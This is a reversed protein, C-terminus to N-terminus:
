LEKIRDGVVDFMSLLSGTVHNDDKKILVVSVDYGQAVFYVTIMSDKEEIKSMRSISTGTSDFVEGTLTDASKTLKFVMKADGQPTGKFVINWRGRFYETAPNQARVTFVFSVAALIIVFAKM